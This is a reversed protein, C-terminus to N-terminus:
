RKSLRWRHEQQERELITARLKGELNTRNQFRSADPVNDSAADGKCAINAIEFVHEWIDISFSGESEAIIMDGNSSFGLVHLSAAAGIEEPSPDLALGGNWGVAVSTSTMFM